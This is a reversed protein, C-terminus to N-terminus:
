APTEVARNEVTLARSNTEAEAARPLILLPCAVHAVLYHSVSGHMLRYLPGYGRSGVILLDVGDGLRAWSRV